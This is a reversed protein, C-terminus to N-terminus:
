TEAPLDIFPTAARFAFDELALDGNIYFDVPDAALDASNHIVQIRATQAMLLSTSLVTFLTILLYKM